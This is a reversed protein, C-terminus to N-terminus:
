TLLEPNYSPFTITAKCVQCKGEKFYKIWLDGNEAGEAELSFLVDPFTASLAKMDAEHEYWEGEVRPVYCTTAGTNNPALILCYSIEKNIQSALFLVNQIALIEEATSANHTLTYRTNYGM